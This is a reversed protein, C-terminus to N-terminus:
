DLTKTKLRKSFKQIVSSHYYNELLLQFDMFNTYMLPMLLTM